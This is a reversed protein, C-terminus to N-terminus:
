ERPVGELARRTHPKTENGRSKEHPSEKAAVNEKTKTKKKIVRSDLTQHHLLRHAESVLGGRFQKDKARDGVASLVNRVLRSPERRTQITRSPFVVDSRMDSCKPNM